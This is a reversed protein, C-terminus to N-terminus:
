EDVWLIACILRLIVWFDLDVFNDLFAHNGFNVAALDQNSVATSRVRFILNEVLHWVTRKWNVREGVCLRSSDLKRWIRRLTNFVKEVKRLWPREVHIRGGYRSETLRHTHCFLLLKVNDLLMAGNVSIQEAADQCRTCYLLQQGEEACLVYKVPVYEVRSSNKM